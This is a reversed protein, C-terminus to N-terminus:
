LDASIDKEFNVGNRTVTAPIPASISQPALSFDSVTVQSSVLGEEKKAVYLKEKGKSFNSKSSKKGLLLNKIWRGPLRGM